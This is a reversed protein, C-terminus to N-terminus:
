LAHMATTPANIKCLVRPSAPPLLTLRRNNHAPATRVNDFPFPFDTACLVTLWAGVIYMPVVSTYVSYMYYYIPLVVCVVVVVVVVVVVGVVVVVVVFVIIVIL